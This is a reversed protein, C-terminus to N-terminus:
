FKWIEEGAPMVDCVENFDLFRNHLWSAFEPNDTFSAFSATELSISPGSLEGAEREKPTM